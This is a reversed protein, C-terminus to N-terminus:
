GVRAESPHPVRSGSPPTYPVKRWAGLAVSHVKAFGPLCLLLIAVCVGLPKPLAM